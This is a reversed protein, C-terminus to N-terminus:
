NVNITEKDISWKIYEELPELGYHDAFYGYVIYWGTEWQLDGWDQASIHVECDELNMGSNREKDTHAITFGDEGIWILHFIQLELDAQIEKALAITPLLKNLM